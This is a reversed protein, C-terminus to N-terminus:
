FPFTDLIHEKTITSSRAAGLMLQNETKFIAGTKLEPRTIAKM